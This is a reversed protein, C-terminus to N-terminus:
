LDHNSCVACERQQIMLNNHCLFLYLFYLFPPHHMHTMCPHPTIAM